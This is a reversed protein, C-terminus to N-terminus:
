DNKNDQKELVELKGELSKIRDKLKENRNKLRACAEGKKQLDNSLWRVKFACDELERGSSLYSKRKGKNSKSRKVCIQSAIFDIVISEVDRM